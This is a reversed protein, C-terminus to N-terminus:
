EKKLTVGAAAFRDALFPSLPTRTRVPREGDLGFLAATEFTTKAASLCEVIGSVVRRGSPLRTIQVVVPHVGAIRNYIVEPPLPTDAMSVYDAWKKLADAASNAHITAMSGDVGTNMAQMLDFAEKGRVEGVIVRDPAVKLGVHRLLDSMTTGEEEPNLEYAIFNPHIDTLHVEHEDEVAIVREKKPISLGMTTLLTTKGAGSGGSVLINVRARVVGDLFRALEPTMTSSKIQDEFTLPYRRFKRIYLSDGAVGFKSSVYTYRLPPRSLAGTYRGPLEEGLGRRQRFRAVAFRIWEAPLTLPLRLLKGGREVLVPHSPSNIMINTVEDDSLLGHLPGYWGVASLLEGVEGNPGLTTAGLSKSLVTALKRMTAAYDDGQGIEFNGLSERAAELVADSYVTM